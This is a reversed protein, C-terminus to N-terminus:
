KKEENLTLNMQPSPKDFNIIFRIVKDLVKKDLYNHVRTVQKLNAMINEREAERGIREGKAQAKALEETTHQKM